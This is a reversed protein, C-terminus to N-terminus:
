LFDLLNTDQLSKGTEAEFEKEARVRDKLVREELAEKTVPLGEKQLGVAAVIGEHAAMFRKLILAQGEIRARALTDSPDILLTEMALQLTADTLMKTMDTFVRGDNTAVVSNEPNESIMTVPLIEEDKM